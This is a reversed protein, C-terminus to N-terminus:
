RLFSLSDGSIKTEVANSPDFTFVNEPRTLRVVKVTSIRDTDVFQDGLGNTGRQSSWYLLRNKGLDDIGWGLFIVSHGGGNTWSINMFDGPLADRPDIVEGMGSYQALAFHNGFGDANWHGWYKVNDERRGGDAEQMRLSETRDPSLNKLREGFLINLAEIFASYSSGSCYSTSRPAEILPHSGLKLDYGIPSEPPNATIGIFYGGGDMATAQVIDIGKLVAQNAEPLGNGFREFHRTHQAGDPLAEGQIRYPIEVATRGCSLIFVMIILTFISKSAIFRIQM